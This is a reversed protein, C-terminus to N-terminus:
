SILITKISNIILLPQEQLGYAFVLSQIRFDHHRRDSITAVIWCSYCVGRQERRVVVMYLAAM